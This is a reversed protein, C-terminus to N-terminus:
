KVVFKKGNQIAIGKYSNNVKQGALNYIPANTNATQTKVTMIATPVGPAVPGNPSATYNAVTENVKFTYDRFAIQSTPTFLMYSKGAKVDFVIWAFKVKAVQNVLTLEDDKYSQNFETDGITYDDNVKISPIWMPTGDKNDCGQVFGEVKYENPAFTKVESKEVLYVNRNTGNAIGFGIKLMGDADSTFEFFEGRAPAATSTKPNFYFGDYLARYKSAFVGETMVPESVFGTVPNGSGWIANFVFDTIQDDSVGTKVGDKWHWVKQSKNFKKWEAKGWNEAPWTENTWSLGEVTSEIDTPTASSVGKFTMHEGKITVILNGNEDQTANTFESAITGADDIALYQEQANVSMAVLAMSILTFIKKMIM